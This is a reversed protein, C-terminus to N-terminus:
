IFGKQQLLNGIRPMKIKEWAKCMATDDKQNEGDETKQDSTGLHLILRLCLQNSDILVLFVVIKPMICLINHEM